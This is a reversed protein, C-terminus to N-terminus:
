FGGYTFFDFPGPAPTLKEKALTIVLNLTTLVCILTIVSQKVAPQDKQVLNFLLTCCNSACNLPQIPGIHQRNASTKLPQPESTKLETRFFPFVLLKKKVRGYDQRRKCVLMMM